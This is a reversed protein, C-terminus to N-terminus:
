DLNYYSVPNLCVLRPGTKDFNAFLSSKVLSKFEVHDVSGPDGVSEMIGGIIANMDGAVDNQPTKQITLGSQPVTNRVARDFALIRVHSRVESRVFKQHIFKYYDEIEDRRHPFTFRM